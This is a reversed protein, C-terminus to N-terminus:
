AFVAPNVSYTGGEFNLLWAFGNSSPRAEVTQGVLRGAVPGSIGWAQLLAQTKADKKITRTLGRCM